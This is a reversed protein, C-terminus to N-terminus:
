DKKVLLIESLKSDEKSHHEDTKKESLELSIESVNSVLNMNKREPYIEDVKKIYDSILMNKQLFIKANENYEFRNKYNIPNLWFEKQNLICKNLSYPNKMNKTRRLRESTTQNTSIYITQAISLSFQFLFSLFIICLLCINLIFDFKFKKNKIFHFFYNLLFYGYSINYCNGIFILFLFKKRNQFGICNSLWPCHHDHRLICLNCYKCHFVRLDRAIFCTSCYKLFFEQKNLSAIMMSTRFDNKENEFNPFFAGPNSIGVFIIQFIEIISIILIITLSKQNSYYITLYITGNTEILILLLTLILGIPKILYSCNGKCFFKRNGIKRFAKDPYILISKKKLEM